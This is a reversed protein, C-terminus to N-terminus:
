YDDNKFQAFEIEFNAKEPIYVHNPESSVYPVDPNIPISFTIETGKKYESKIELTGKLYSICESVLTLGLGMGKTESDDVRFFPQTVKPINEQSIGIGNDKVTFYLFGKKDYMKLTITPKKKQSYKLSNTILNLLMREVTHAPIIVLKSKCKFVQKFNVNFENLYVETNACFSDFFDRAFLSQHISINSTNIDMLNSLMMTMKNCNNIINQTYELLKEKSCADKEVLTNILRATSNILNVPTQVEHSVLSLKKIFNKERTNKKM